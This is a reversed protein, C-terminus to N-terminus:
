VFQDIASNSGMANCRYDRFTQIVRILSLLM